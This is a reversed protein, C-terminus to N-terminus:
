EGIGGGESFKLSRDRIGPFIGGGADVGEFAIERSGKLGVFGALGKLIPLFSGALDFFGQCIVIKRASEAGRLRSFM